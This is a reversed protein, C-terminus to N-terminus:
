AAARIRALLVGVRGCVLDNAGTLDTRSALADMAEDSEFDRTRHIADERMFHVFRADALEQPWAAEFSAQNAFNYRMPLINTPVGSKAIALAIGLQDSWYAVEPPTKRLISLAEQYPGWLRAMDERPGFVMGSNFYPPSIARPSCMVGAGSHTHWENPGDLGFLAFLGRWGQPDLPPVHTIMGSVGHLAFLEDFRRLCIVDADLVLVHDGRFPPRFRDAATAVYPYNSGRWAEHESPLVYDWLAGEIAPPTPASDGPSEWEPTVSVRLLADPYFERVSAAILRVRSFFSPTPSIATRIELTM